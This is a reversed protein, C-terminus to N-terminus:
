AWTARAKKQSRALRRMGEAVALIAACAADIRGNSRSKTIKHNGAPDTLTIADAFASRL